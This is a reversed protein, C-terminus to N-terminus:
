QHSKESSNTEAVSVRDLSEEGEMDNVIEWGMRMNIGRKQTREVTESGNKPLVNEPSDFRLPAIGVQQKEQDFVVYNNKIFLDGIIMFNANSPQIGSFCLEKGTSSKINPKAGQDSESQGDAQDVAERVLDEYPIAFRHNEIELELKKEAFPSTSSAYDCPIAWSYGLVKTAGPILDHIATCLRDPVIMLTTGIDMIGAMNSRPIRVGNIIKVSKTINKSRMYSYSRSPVYYVRKNDVFINEVNIQWYKPRTVPTYVIHHGERIRLEDIGGFLVEGGGNKVGRGNDIKRSRGERPTKGLYFSFVGRDVLKQDMMNEFVTKAQQEASSLLTGFAMGMIGDVIDDFNTSETTVLALQQNQVKLNNITVDDRALFDEAHSLDGYTIQWANMDAKPFSTLPPLFSSSSTTSNESNSNINNEFESNLRFTSSAASDYRTTGSCEECDKSSLIFKASGTDFDIKFAQPPEGVMVTGYYERDFDYDILPLRAVGSGDPVRGRQVGKVGETQPGSIGYKRMTHVWRGVTSPRRAHQITTIPVKVVGATSDDATSTQAVVLLLASAIGLNPKM